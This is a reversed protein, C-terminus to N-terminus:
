IKTTSHMFKMKWQDNAKIFTASEIWDFQLNYMDTFVFDCHCSYRMCGLSSEIDINFNDFSYDATYPPYSNLASIMSDITWAKGDGYLIFDTTIAEKIKDFDKNAIGGYFNFLVQKLLEPSDILEEESKECSMLLCFGAMFLLLIKVNKM